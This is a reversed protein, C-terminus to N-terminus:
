GGQGLARPLRHRKTLPGVGQGPGRQRPVWREPRQGEAVGCFDVGPKPVRHHPSSRAKPTEAPPKRTARPHGGHLDLNINSVRTGHPRNLGTFGEMEWAWGLSCRWVDGVRSLCNAKGERWGRGKEASKLPCEWKRQGGEWGRAVLTLVKSGVRAPPGESRELCM